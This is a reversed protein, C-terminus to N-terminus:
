KPLVVSAGWGREAQELVAETEAELREQLSSGEKTPDPDPNPPNYTPDQQEVRSNPM